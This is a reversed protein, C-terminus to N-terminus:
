EDAIRPALIYQVAAEGDVLEFSILAPFDPGIGLTVPISGPIPDEMDRLYEVSFLSDAAGGTFEIVDDESMGADVSDTDGKAQVYFEKDDTTGIHLHEAVMDCANIARSFSDGSLKVEATLDLDPIEPEQRISDPDTLSLTYNLGGCELQLKRTEEDLMVRAPPSGEEKAFLSIIDLLRELPIGITHEQAEYSEFMTEPIHLDVMGVNAPDVATIGVGNEDIRMKCEDVLASVPQLATELEIPDITAAFM